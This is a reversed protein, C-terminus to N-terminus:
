PGLMKIVTDSSLAMNLYYSEIVQPTKQPYIDLPKLAIYDTIDLLVTSCFLSCLQHFLKIYECKNSRRTLLFGQVTM